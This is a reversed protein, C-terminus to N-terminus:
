VKKMAQDCCVLYGFGAQVVVVVAGCKGCQYTEGNDTPM